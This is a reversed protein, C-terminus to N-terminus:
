QADDPAKTVFSLRTINLESCVDMVKVIDQYIAGKDARLLVTNAGLIKQTRVLLERLESLTYERRNVVFRGQPTINIVIDRGAQEIESSHDAQPLVVSLEKEMSQYSTTVIFFILLIFLIDVMPALQFEHTSPQARQFRM